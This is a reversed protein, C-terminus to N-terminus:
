HLREESPPQTLAPGPETLSPPDAPSPPVSGPSARASTWAGARSPPVVLPSPADLPDPSSMPPGGLLEDPHPHRAAGLSNAPPESM